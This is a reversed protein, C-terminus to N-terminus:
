LRLGLGLEACKATLKEATGEGRYGFHFDHGVVLHTADWEAVLHDVFEDWPMHM